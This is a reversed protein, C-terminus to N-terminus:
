DQIIPFERADEAVMRWSEGCLIWKAALRVPNAIPLVRYRRDATKEVVYLYWSEGTDFAKRIQAASLEVVEADDWTRGRGKVEILRVQQTRPDVSRVDWGSQHPVGLEPQRGAEREYQVVVERYEEDGLGGDAEGGITVISEQDEERGTVLEGKLSSRLQRALARQRGLARDKTYSSDISESEAQGLDTATAADIADTEAGLSLEPGDELRRPISTDGKAIDQDVQTEGSREVSSDAESSRCQRGIAVGDHPKCAITSPLEFDPAHSRKFKDVALGFDRDNDIAMFLGALDAALGARQGFSFDRVLEKAADAGFQLPRGALTLTDEHLRANIPVDSTRGGVSVQLSLESVHVLREPTRFKRDNGDDVLSESGRIHRLLDYIQGTRSIWAEVPITEPDADWTMTVCSSLPRIGIAKAVRLQESRTSGLHGGTVIRLGNEAPFFRRDDIDDIFINDFDAVAIWERGVFVMATRVASQWQRLLNDDAATDDLCYAYATPLVDRVENALGEFSSRARRWVSRIYSLAQAGSTTEPFKVPFGDHDLEIRLKDDIHDLPVVWRGLTGRHHGGTRKVIRDLTVRQDHTTPVSLEQLANDFLERDTDSSVEQGCESLLSALAAADLGSGTSLLRQLSTARPISAGFVLGEQKLAQLLQSSLKAFPAHVRADDPEALVDCPRRLNDDNCPVWKLEALKSVWLSPKTGKPEYRRHYHYSADRVGKERLSRYGDELWSAIAFRVEHPTDPSPLTPEFDYDMLTYGRNNSDVISEVDIGLYEAVEHRRGRAVTRKQTSTSLAGKAGAREFFTRWDHAGTVKPDTDIYVSDITPTDPFLCRRDQGRDVYPDALLAGRVSITSLAGNSLVVVRSLLDPRNRSRAWHGFAVILTYDPDAASTWADIAATAVERLSIPRAHDEIWDWAQAVYDARRRGRLTNVWDPALRSADRVFPQMLQRSETGGPEDEGPLMENLFTAERSTIWYGSLSRVCRPNFATWAERTVLKSVAAWVRFILDRRTEAKDPLATWWDELGGDWLRELEPPNMEPLLDISQFLKLAGPGLVSRVVVNGKLLVLPQLELQDIFAAALEEPPVVADCAKSYAVKDVADTWVPIVAADEVRERFKTLWRESALLSELGGDGSLALRFVSFAKSAVTPQICASASWDLYLALVDGIKDVIERQWPNDEIDRLNGRSINLLWDASIHIGFPLVIETPLPAYVRGRTPPAPDGANDLSLVGIVRRTRAADSYVQESEDQNPLIKRHELFCAVAERSPNFEVSFVKWLLNEDNSLATAEFCGDSEECIDLEWTKGDVELLRLGAMALIALLSRDEVPLFHGLDSEFHTDGDRPSLMAFRTTFGCEPADVMDDWIPVVSGLYDRHVDGYETGVNQTIEYRLAWGWGSIHVENFRAFVSKFGIGMFGVSRVGKTSRFIKSLGAIGKEELEQKGNHQFVLSDGNDTVRIAISSANADLANQVLEYLYVWLHDFTLDVRNLWGRGDASNYFARNESALNEIFTKKSTSTM